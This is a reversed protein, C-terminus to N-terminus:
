AIALFIYEGTPYNMGYLWNGAATLAFGSAHPDIYDTNTIEASSDDLNIVPDNGSVIGRVSDWTWWSSNNDLRKILVFRAGASFGCDINLTAGTGTYSGVKSVGELTAFLYSIYTWSSNNVGNDTGVSFVSSTPSTSNWYQNYASSQPNDSNLAVYRMNGLSSHYTMWSEPNLRSKVIIMEPVVGLSHNVTRGGVGDGPYAVIDFFGKARKFMVQAENGSSGSGFGDMYDFASKTGSDNYATEASTSDTYAVKGVGSLRNVVHHNSVGTGETTKIAMDVPFGSTWSPATTVQTADIAFVETAAEPEVMMPGRIAMYINNEGSNKFGTPTIYIGYNGVGESASTDPFLVADSPTGGSDTSCGRLTDVVKWTGAFDHRKILIYQPEWGLDVIASSSASGCAIMGDDDEGDPDHAFLYAVYELGSGNVGSDNGLTFVSDTPETDNWRGAHNAPVSTNFRVYWDGPNTADLGRHYIDWNDSTSTVKVIMMGPAVGLDHAIERGATGNGTYTVVDFFRKRKRFTWSAYKLPTSGTLGNTSTGNGCSFGDANFSNLQFEDTSQSSTTNSYLLNSAGRETDFLAHYNTNDRCKIWTMGGSTGDYQPKRIAMYILNTPNYIGSPVTFGTSTPYIVGYTPFESGMTDADIRSGRTSEYM